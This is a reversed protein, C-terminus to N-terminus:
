NSKVFSHCFIVYMTEAVFILPLYQCMVKCLDFCEGASNHMCFNELCHYSFVCMQINSCPAKYLKMPEEGFSCLKGHWWESLKHTKMHIRLNGLEASRYPCHPCSYPKEGTHIRVHRKLREKTVTSFQCHSCSFPREGTHLRMHTVLHTKKKTSYSCYACQHLRTPCSLENGGTWSLMSGGYDMGVQLPHGDYWTVIM